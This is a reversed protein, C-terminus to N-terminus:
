PSSVIGIQVNCDGSSCYEVLGLRLIENMPEFVVHKVSKQAVLVPADVCFFFFFLSVQKIKVQMIFNIETQKAKCKM